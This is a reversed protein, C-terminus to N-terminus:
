TGAPRSRHAPVSVPRVSSSFRSRGSSGPLGSHGLKTDEGAWIVNMVFGFFRGLFDRPRSALTKGIDPVIARYLTIRCIRSRVSQTRPGSCLSVRPEPVSLTGAHRVDQPSIPAGQPIRSLNCSSIRRFQLRVRLGVLSGERAKV